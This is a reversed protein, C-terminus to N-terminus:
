VSEARLITSVSLRNSLWTAYEDAPLPKSYMYGQIEDCAMARLLQEQAVQEVGEAVVKLGLTQALRVVASVITSSERNTSLDGVFSQDIKLADIPFRQLYSLSSYGTGFDDVAIKCGLAKLQKLIEVSREHNEMLMGETIELCLLHAPMGTEELVAAVQSPLNANQLQRASLNVAMELDPLGEQRWQTSQACASGLVFKGIKEILDSEEALPIFRAPLIIGAESSWRVLAEMGVVQNLHVNVKPQYFVELEGKEIGARLDHEMSIRELTHQRIEDVYFQYRNKGQRKAEYMASDANLLLTEVELGDDPFLAIGISASLQYTRHNLQYGQSLKTLLRSCLNEVHSPTVAPCVVIFEDGGLRTLSESVIQECPTLLGSIRDAVQKLVLDGVARTGVENIQKFKDLDIHCIAVSQENRRAQALVDQFHQTLFARNPLETLTDFYALKRIEAESKRRETIEQVTGSVLIQGTLDHTRRDIRSEFCRTQEGEGSSHELTIPLRSNTPDVLIDVLRERVDAPFFELLHELKPETRSPIGFLDAFGETWRLVAQNGNWEWTGNLAMHEAFGLMTQNRRLEDSIATSRLMYRM